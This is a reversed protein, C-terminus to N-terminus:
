WLIYVLLTQIFGFIHYDLLLYIYWILAPINGGEALEMCSASSSSASSWILHLEQQHRLM